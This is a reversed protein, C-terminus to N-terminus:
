RCQLDFASKTDLRDLESGNGPSLGLSAIGVAGLAVASPILWSRMASSMVQGRAKSIKAGQRQGDDGGALM